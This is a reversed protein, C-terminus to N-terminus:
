NRRFRSVFFILPGFCTMLIATLLYIKNIWYSAGFGPAVGLEFDGCFAWSFSPTLTFTLFLFRFIM